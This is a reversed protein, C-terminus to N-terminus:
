PTPHPLPASPCLPVQLPSLVEPGGPAFSEILELADAMTAALQTPFPRLPGGVEREAVIASLAPMGIDTHM